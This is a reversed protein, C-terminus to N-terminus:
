KKHNTEYEKSCENLFDMAAAAGKRGLVKVHKGPERSKYNELFWVINEMVESDLDSIDKCHEYDSHGEPVAIIKHDLEDTDEMEIIGLIKVPVVCGPVFSETSVVIVDMPDNDYKNWTQPFFGYNQPYDIPTRFVRDVFIAGHKDNYEYKVHCKKPIEVVMHFVGEDESQLPIDTFLNM